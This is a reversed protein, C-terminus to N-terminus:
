YKHAVIVVDGTKANDDADSFADMVLYFAVQGTCSATIVTQISVSQYEDRDNDFNEDQYTNYLNVTGCSGTQVFGFQVDDNGSGGTFKFKFTATVVVIDGADVNLSSTSNSATTWTTLSSSYSRETRDIVYAVQNPMHITNGNSGSGPLRMDGDAELTLELGSSGSNTGSLVRMTGQYNDIFWAQTYATGSNLQLQGGESSGTSVTAGLVLNSESPITTAGIGVNGNNSIRMAETTTASNATSTNGVEFVISGNNSGMDLAGIRASVGATSAYTLFDIYAKNGASGISSSVKLIDTANAYIEAPTAPTATGIGVNGGSLIRMREKDSTGFVLAKADTTGIFNETSGITSTGYTAPAAPANIGSNGLLNWDKNTNDDLKIWGSGNWYYYGPTVNTPYTGTTATNYILTSTAPSTIPSATTTATLAVRPIMVGSNTSTIELKASPTTTGIGVNQARITDFGCALFISLAIIVRKM